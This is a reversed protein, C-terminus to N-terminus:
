QTKFIYSFTLTPLLVKLLVGIELSFAMICQKRSKFLLLNTPITHRFFCRSFASYKGSYTMKQQATNRMENWLQSLKSGSICVRYQIYNFGLWIAYM